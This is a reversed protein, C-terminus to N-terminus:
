AIYKDQTKIAARKEQDHSINFIWNGWVMMEIQYHESQVNDKIRLNAVFNL